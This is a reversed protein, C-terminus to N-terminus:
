PTCAPPRAWGSRATPSTRHGPRHRLGAAGTIDVGLPGIATLVGANPSPMGDVGGQRALTNGAADIVYLTTKTAGAVSGTYAAAVM